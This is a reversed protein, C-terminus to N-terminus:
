RRMRLLSLAHPADAHQDAKGLGIRIHLRPERSEPARERLQPPRFAAIKLNL